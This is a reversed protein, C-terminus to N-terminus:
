REYVENRHAIRTVEVSRKADDITYVARYDGIRIHWENDGGLAEQMRSAPLGPPRPARALTELRPVIRAVLHSSLKGLERAASTTLAVLYDAM